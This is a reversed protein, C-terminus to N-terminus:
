LSPFHDSRYSSCESKMPFNWHMIVDVDGPCGKSITMEFMMHVDKRYAHHFCAKSADFVASERGRYVTSTADTKAWVKSLDVKSIADLIITIFDDCMPALSFRIGVVGKKSGPVGAQCSQYNVYPKEAM